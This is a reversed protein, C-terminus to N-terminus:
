QQGEQDAEPREVERDRRHVARLLRALSTVLDPTPTVDSPEADL